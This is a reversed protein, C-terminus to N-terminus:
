TLDQSVLALLENKPIGKSLKSDFGAKIFTELSEDERVTGTLAYVKQRQGPRQHSEWSRFESWGEGYSILTSTRYVTSCEGTQEM